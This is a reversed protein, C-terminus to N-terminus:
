AGPQSAPCADRFPRECAERVQIGGLEVGHARQAPRQQHQGARAGALRADDGIADGLQDAAARLRLPNQGDRERLFRGAFHLLPGAASNAPCPAARCRADSRVRLSTESSEGRGSIEVNWESQTRMRRRFM